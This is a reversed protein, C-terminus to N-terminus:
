LSGREIRPVTAVHSVTFGDADVDIEGLSKFTDPM